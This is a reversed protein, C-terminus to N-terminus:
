KQTLSATGSDFIIQPDDLKHGEVTVDYKYPADGSNGKLTTSAWQGKPATYTGSGHTPIRGHKQFDVTIAGQDSKWRIAEGHRVLHDHTHKGNHEYDYREHADVTVIIDNDM